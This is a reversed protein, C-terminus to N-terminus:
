LRGALRYGSWGILGTWVGGLLLLGTTQADLLGYMELYPAVVALVAVIAGLGAVGGLVREDESRVATRGVTGALPLLLFVMTLFRVPLWPLGHSIMGTQFLLEEDGDRVVVFADEERVDDGYTFESPLDERTYEDCTVAFERCVVPTYEDGPAARTRDVFTRALGSLEDYRYTPARKVHEDYAAATEPVVRNDYAGADDAVYPSALTGSYFLLGVLVAAVVLGTAQLIRHTSLSM